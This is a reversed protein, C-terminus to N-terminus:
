RFPVAKNRAGVFERATPEHLVIVRRRDDDAGFRARGSRSVLVDRFHRWGFTVLGRLEASSLELRKVRYLAPGLSALHLAVHDGDQRVFHQGEKLTGDDLSLLVDLVVQALKNRRDETTRRERNMARMLRSSTTNSILQAQVLRAALRQFELVLAEREDASPLPRWADADDAIPQEANM